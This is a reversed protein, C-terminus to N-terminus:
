FTLHLYMDRMVDVDLQRNQLDCLKKFMKYEDTYFIRMGFILKQFFLHIPIHLISKTEFMGFGFGFGSGSSKEINHYDAGDLQHKWYSSKQNDSKPLNIELEKLIRDNV